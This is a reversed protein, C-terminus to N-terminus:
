AASQEASHAAKALEALSPVADLVAVLRALTLPAAKLGREIRSVTIASIGAKRALADQTLGAALRRTRITTATEM